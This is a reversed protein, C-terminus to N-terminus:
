DRMLVHSQPRCLHAFGHSERHVLLKLSISINSSPLFPPVESHKSHLLIHVAFVSKSVQQKCEKSVQQVLILAVGGQEFRHRGGGRVGCGARAIDLMSPKQLCILEM